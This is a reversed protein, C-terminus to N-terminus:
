PQLEKDKHLTHLQAFRARIEQLSGVTVFVDYQWDFTRTIAFTRLPAFYSCAGKAQESSGFRYCTLESAVPVYVGIGVDNDDVYAAWHETMKKHENPWGPVSRTLAGDSWPEAGDYMVLNHLEPQVFVAPLEQHTPPHDEGDRQEFRYKIHAIPGELDIWQQMTTTRLDEGSAWHKPLTKVYASSPKITLELVQASSGRWDGGQVPNWRWPKKNWLSGDAKGYYSQQILRGRDHANVMNRGDPEAAVWAIAGGSEPKLGVSIQGNSIRKLAAQSDVSNDTQPPQFAAVWATSDVLPWLFLLFTSFILRLFTM